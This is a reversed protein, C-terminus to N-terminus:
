IHGFIRPPHQESFLSSIWLTTQLETAQQKPFCAEFNDILSHLHTSATEIVSQELNQKNGDVRSRVDPSNEFEDPQQQLNRRRFKSNCYM